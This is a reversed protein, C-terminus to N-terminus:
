EESERNSASQPDSPQVSPGTLASCEAMYESATPRYIALGGLALMMPILGFSLGVFRFVFALVDVVIVSALVFLLRRRARLSGSRLQAALGAVALGLVMNFAGIIRQNRVVSAQFDAPAHSDGQYGAVTVVLGALLMLAAGALLLFFGVRISAPAPPQPAQTPPTM